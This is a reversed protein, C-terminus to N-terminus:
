WRFVAKLFDGVDASLAESIREYYVPLVAERTTRFGHTGETGFKAIKRSILFSLQSPSPIRGDRGPRPLVPKIEVWRLIADRPPWHPKTGEELYKWYHNMRLSATFSHGDVTVEATITDTLRDTGYETPHGHKTLQDIYGAKVDQALEQLVAMTRPFELLEDAM